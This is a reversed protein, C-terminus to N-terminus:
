NAAAPQPHRPDVGVDKLTEVRRGRAYVDGRIPDSMVEQRDADQIHAVKRFFSGRLFKEADEAVAEPAVVEPITERRSKKVAVNPARGLQHAATYVGFGASVVIMGVAVCVPVLDGKPLKSKIGGPPRNLQEEAAAAYPKSKPSTWTAFNSAGQLQKAMSKWYAPKNILRFAAM